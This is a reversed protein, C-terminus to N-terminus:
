TLTYIIEVEGYHLCSVKRDNNTFCALATIKDMSLLYKGMNEDGRM